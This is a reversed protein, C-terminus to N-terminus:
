EVDEPFLRRKAESFAYTETIDDSLKLRMNIYDDFSVSQKLFTSGSPNKRFEDGHSSLFQRYSHLITIINSPKEKLYYFHNIISAMGVLIPRYVLYFDHGMKDRQDKFYKSLNLNLTPVSFSNDTYVIVPFIILNKKTLGYSSYDEVYEPNKNIEKIQNILQNIGKPEGSSTEIFNEHFYKEIEEGSSEKIDDGMLIDKFEFLILKNDIRLYYDFNWKNKGDDWFNVVTEEDDYLSNLTNVFLEKESYEKGFTSKYDPFRLGDEKLGSFSHFDFLLGQRFKDIIFNWNFLVYRGDTLKLIPQNRLEKFNKSEFSKPDHISLDRIFPIVSHNKDELDVPFLCRLEQQNKDWANIFLLILDKLLEFEDKCGLVAMFKEFYGPYKSKFYDYMSFSQYLEVDFKKARRFEYQNLATAWLLHFTNGTRKVVHEEDLRENLFLIAKLTRLKVEAISRFSDKRYYRLENDILRLVTFLPFISLDNRSFRKKFTRLNEVIESQDSIGPQYIIKLFLEEHIDLTDKIFLRSNIYSAVTM